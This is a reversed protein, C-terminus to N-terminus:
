RLWVGADTALAGGVFPRLCSTRTACPADFCQQAARFDVFSKSQVTGLAAQCREKRLRDNGGGNQDLGALAYARANPRRKPDALAKAVQPSYRAREEMLMDVSQEKCLWLQEMVQACQRVLEAMAPVNNSAGAPPPAAQQPAPQPAPGPSPQQQPQPQQQAWPHAAAPADSGVVVALRGQWPLLGRQSWGPVDTRSATLTIGYPRNMLRQNVASVIQSHYNDNGNRALRASECRGVFQLGGNGAVIQGAARLELGAHVGDILERVMQQLFPPVNVTARIDRGRGYLTFFVRDGQVSADKVGEVVVRGGVEKALVSADFELPMVKTYAAALDAPNLVAVGVNGPPLRALAQRAQLELRLADRKGELARRQQRLDELGGDGCAVCGLLTVLMGTRVNM